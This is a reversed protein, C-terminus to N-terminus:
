VLTENGTTKFCRSLISFRSLNILKYGVEVFYTILEVQAYTTKYTQLRNKEILGFKIIRKAFSLHYGWILTIEVRKDMHRHSLEAFTNM